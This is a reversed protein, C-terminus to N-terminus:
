RGPANTALPASQHRFCEPSHSDIVGIAQLFSYITVSGAYKCGRKKLDKSIADSLENKTIELPINLTEGNTFGWIYADFSGFEDQINLFVQANNIAARIKGESRVIGADSMLREVDAEGYAAVKVPNFSDFATRFNERKHLLLSWSLGAQFLELLFLEYLAMEDHCPTGWEEDHYHIYIPDKTPVWGCRPLATEPASQEQGSAESM